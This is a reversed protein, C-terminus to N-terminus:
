YRRDRNLYAIVRLVLWIPFVLAAGLLFYRFISGFADFGLEVIGRVLEQVGTVIKVVDLNLAALVVGVILSLLVLRVLVWGPAGGFLRRLTDQAM